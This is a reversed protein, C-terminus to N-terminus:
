RILRMKATYLKDNSVYLINICEKPNEGDSGNVYYGIVVLYM